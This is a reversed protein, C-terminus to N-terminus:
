RYLAPLASKHPQWISSVQVVLDRNKTHADRLEKRHADMLWALDQLPLPLLYTYTKRSHYPLPAPVVGPLPAM